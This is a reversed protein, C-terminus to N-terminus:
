RGTALTVMTLQKVSTLLDLKSFDSPLWSTNNTSVHFEREPHTHTHTHTHTNSLAQKQTNKERECGEECLYSLWFLVVCVFVVVIGVWGCVVGFVCVFMVVIGVWVWLCVGFVWVCVCLGWCKSAPVVHYLCPETMKGVTNQAWCQLTGYDQRSGAVFEVM